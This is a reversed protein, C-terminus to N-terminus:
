ILAASKRTRRLSLFGCGAILAMLVTAPEPIAVPRFILSQTLSYIATNAGIGIALTMVVAIAFGPSKRLTRLAYRLDQILGM